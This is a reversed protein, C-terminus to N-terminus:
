TKSRVYFVTTLLVLMGGLTLTVQPSYVDALKGMILLSAAGGLTRTASIMSNVTSRHRPHIENFLHGYMVINVSGYAVEILILGLFFMSLQSASGSIVMGIGLLTLIRLLGRKNRTFLMNHGALLGGFMTPIAIMLIAWGREAEPMGLYKVIQPWYMFVPKSAFSYAVILSTAGVIKRNKVALSFIQKLSADPENMDPESYEALDDGAKLLVVSGLVTAILFFTGSVFWAIKMGFVASIYGALISTSIQGVTFLMRSRGMVRSAEVEGLRNQLWSELADSKLSHGVAAVGEALFFGGMKTSAGYIYQTSTWMIQGIIFTKRKGFKDAIHGTFPDFVSTSIHYFFNVVGMRLFNMGHFELWPTYIPFFSGMGLGELFQIVYFVLKPSM